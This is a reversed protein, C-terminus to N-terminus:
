GPPGAKSLLLLADEVKGDEYCVAPLWYEAAGSCKGDLHAGAIVIAM